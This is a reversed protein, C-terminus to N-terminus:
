LLSLKILSTSTASYTIHVMGHAICMVGYWPAICMVGYWTCHVHVGYWTCHVNCMETRLTIAHSLASIVIIVAFYFHIYRIICIAYQKLLNQM